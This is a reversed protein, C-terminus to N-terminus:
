VSNPLQISSDSHVVMSLMMVCPRYAHSHIALPGESCLSCSRASVISSSVNGAPLSGDANQITTSGLEDVLAVVGRRRLSETIRIHDM